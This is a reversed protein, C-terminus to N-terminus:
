ISKFWKVFFKEVVNNIDLEFLNLEEGGYNPDYCYSLLSLNEMLIQKRNQWIKEIKDKLIPILWKTINLIKNNKDNNNMPKLSSSTM